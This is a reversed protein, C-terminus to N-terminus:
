VTNFFSDTYIYCKAADNVILNLSHSSCPVYFEKPNNYLIRKQVRNHKGRMNSGNDYSQGRTNNINIELDSPMKIIQDSLAAGTKDFVEIFGIFYEHVVGKSICVYRLM